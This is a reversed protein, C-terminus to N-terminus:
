QGTQSGHKQEAADLNPIHRGKRRPTAAYEGPKIGQRRESAQRRATESIYAELDRRLFVAHKQNLSMGPLEGRDFLERTAEYGLRLFEAAEALNLTETPVSM